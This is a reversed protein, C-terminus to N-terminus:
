ENKINESNSSLVEVDSQAQLLRSQWQRRQHRLLPNSHGLTYCNIHSRRQMVEIWQAFCPEAKEAM